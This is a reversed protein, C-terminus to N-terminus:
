VRRKMTIINIRKSVRDVQDSIEGLASVMEKLQLKLFPDLDSDFIKAIMRHEIHDCHSENEDIVALFARIGEKRQIMVDVQKIMLECSEFSIRLIDKVDVALFDPIKLRQLQIMSLVFEFYRPIEDIAELLDMIDERSEPILAKGYMLQNIEERIDDARSEFKHTQDVLFNIDECFGKDLCLTIGQAFHRQVQELNKLYDYILIELHHQKKFFSKLM